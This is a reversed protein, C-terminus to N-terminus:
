THMILLKTYPSKQFIGKRPPPCIVRFVLRPPRRVCQGCVPLFFPHDTVPSPHQQQDEHDECLHRTWVIGQLRRILIQTTRCLHIM